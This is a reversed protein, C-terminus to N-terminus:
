KAESVAGIADTEIGNDGMTNNEWQGWKIFGKGAQRCQKALATLQSPIVVETPYTGTTIRPNIPADTLVIQNAYGAEWTQPHCIGVWGSPVQSPTPVCQYNWGLQFGVLRQKTLAYWRIIKSKAPEVAGEKINGEAVPTCMILEPGLELIVNLCSNFWADDYKALALGGGNQWNTGGTGTITILTFINYNRMVTVWNTLFKKAAEIDTFDNSDRGFFGVSCANLGAMAHLQAVKTADIIDGNRDYGTGLIQNPQPSPKIASYVVTLKRYCAGGNNYALHLNGDQDIAISGLSGPCIVNETGLQGLENTYRIIIKGGRTWCMFAGGTKSPAMQAAFRRQGSSGFKDVTIISTSPKVMTGTGSATGQWINLLVGGNGPLSHLMYAIQPNILDPCLGPYAGDDWMGTYTNWNAWEVYTQKADQKYSNQYNTDTCGHWINHTTGDPHLVTGARSIIFGNKEGGNYAYLQGSSVERLRGPLTNDYVYKKWYGRASSVIVEGPISIDISLNGADWAGQLRSNTYYPTSPLISADTRCLVGIGVTAGMLIGSTWAMDNKDIEIHPNYFQNSGIDAANWKSSQWQGKIKDFFYVFSSGDFAAHPQGKSDIAISSIRGTGEALREESGINSIIPEKTSPTPPTPPTPPPETTAGSGNFQISTLLLRKWFNLLEGKAVINDLTAWTSSLHCTISASIDKDAYIINIDPSTLDYEENSFSLGKKFFTKVFSLINKGSSTTIKDITGSLTLKGNQTAYTTENCESILTGEWISNKLYSSFIWSKVETVKCSIKYTLKIM